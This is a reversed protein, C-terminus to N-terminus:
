SEIKDDWEKEKFGVVGFNGGLLFPRKILKGNKSLLQLAEETSMNKLKDKINQERYVQGSTNFLKGLDNQYHLLMKKLEATSPPTLVIDITKTEIKKAKLYKAAQICTSCKPYWYFSIPQSPMTVRKIQRTFRGM